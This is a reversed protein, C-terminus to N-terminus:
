RDMEEKALAKYREVWPAIVEAIADNLETALRHTDGETQGTYGGAMFVTERESGPTKKRVEAQISQLATIRGMYEKVKEANMM